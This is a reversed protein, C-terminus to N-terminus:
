MLEKIIRFHKPVTMLFFTEAYAPLAVLVLMVVIMFIRNNRRIESM